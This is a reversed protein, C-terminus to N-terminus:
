ELNSNPSYQMDTERVPTAVTMGKKATEVNTTILTLRGTNASSAPVSGNDSIGTM